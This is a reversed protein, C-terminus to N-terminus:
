KHFMSACLILIDSNWTERGKEREIQQQWIYASNLNFSFCFDISFKKTFTFFNPSIRKFCLVYVVYYMRCITTSRISFYKKHKKKVVIKMKHCKPTSFSIVTKMTKLWSSYNKRKWIKHPKHIAPIFNM